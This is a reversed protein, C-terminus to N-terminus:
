CRSTTSASTPPRSRRIGPLPPPLPAFRGGGGGGSEGVAAASRRRDSRAQQRPVGAECGRAELSEVPVELAVSGGACAAHAATAPQRQPPLARRVGDGATAAARPTRTRCSAWRPAVAAALTTARRLWHLLRTLHGHGRLDPPARGPRSSEPRAYEHPGYGSGTSIPRSTHGHTEAETEAGARALFSTSGASGRALKQIRGRLTIVRAAHAASRECPNAPRHRVARAVRLRRKTPM